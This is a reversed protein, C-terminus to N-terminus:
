ERGMLVDTLSLGDLILLDPQLRMGAEASDIFRVDELGARDEERVRSLVYERNNDSVFVVSHAPNM